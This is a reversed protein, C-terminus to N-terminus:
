FKRVGIPYALGDKSSVAYGDIDIDGLLRLGAIHPAAMSTGGSYYYTNNLGTSLIGEGPAAIDVPPQGYNSFWSFQDRSNISAVTMLYKGNARQPSMSNAHMASNGSAIVFWIGKKESANIVAQDVALSPPGGISMNAVDGKKGRHGVFDIGAIVTSLSGGGFDDLVKVPVITAGAAVGVVGFHNDIAAITGAVHTGHGHGDNYDRKDQNRNGGKKDYFSTFGHKSDVNLDVHDVDVGTDLVFVVNKGKYTEGGKVRKIGYPIVQTNIEESKGLEVPPRLAIFRDEEVLYVMPDNKIRAVQENDLRVSFGTIASVYVQDINDGSIKHAHLFHNMEKRFAAQEVEYDEEGRRFNIFKDHLVVIYQDPIVKGHDPHDEMLPQYMTLDTETNCSFLAMHCFLVAIFIKASNRMFM